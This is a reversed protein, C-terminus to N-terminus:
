ALGPQLILLRRLIQPGRADTGHVTQPRKGIVVAYGTREESERWTMLSEGRTCRQEFAVGSRERIIKITEPYPLLSLGSSAIEPDLIPDYDFPRWIRDTSGLTLVTPSQM